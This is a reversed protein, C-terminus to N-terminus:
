YIKEYLELDSVADIEGWMGSIAVAKIKKGNSILIQLMTTCDLKNIDYNQLIKKTDSWGSKTFKLLSMQPKAM